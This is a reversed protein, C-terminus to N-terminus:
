GLPSPPSSARPTWRNPPSSRATPPSRFQLVGTLISVHAGAVSALVVGYCAVATGDNILSESEILLALRRPVGLTKFLAVVAIPDTAAILAGFVLAHGFSFDSAFGFVRVAEGLLPAMLPRSAVVGPLASLASEVGM